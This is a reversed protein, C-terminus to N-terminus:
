YHLKKQFILIILSSREINEKLSLYAVAAAGLLGNSKWLNAVDSLRGAGGLVTIPIHIQDM